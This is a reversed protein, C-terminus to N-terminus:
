HSLKSGMPMLAKTMFEIGMAFSAQAIRSSNPLFWVALLVATVSLQDLDSDNM